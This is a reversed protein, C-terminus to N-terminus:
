CAKDSESQSGCNCWGGGGMLDKCTTITVTVTAPADNAVVVAIITM